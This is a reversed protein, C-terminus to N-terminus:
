PAASPRPPTDPDDSSGEALPGGTIPAGGPEGRRRAEEEEARYAAVVARHAEDEADWRAFAARRRERRKFWAFILASTFFLALLIQGALAVMWSRDRRLSARFAAFEQELPLGSELVVADALSLGDLMSRLLRVGAGPRRGQTLHRLFAESQAYALAAAGEGGRFAADLEDLPLLRGFFEAPRLDVEEPTRLRGAALQAYGEDVWRPPLRGAPGRAAAGAFVALHAFEHALLARLMGDDLRPLDSRLFVLRAPPIAIAGAWDPARGGTAARVRAELEDRDGVIRVTKERPVPAGLVFSAREAAFMTEAAVRVAFARGGRAYEIRTGGAELVEFPDGEQARLLGSLFAAACWLFLLRGGTSM